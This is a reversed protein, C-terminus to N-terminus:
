KSWAQVVQYFRDPWTLLFSRGVRYLWVLRSNLSRLFNVDFRDLHRCFEIAWASIGRLFGYHKSASVPILLSGLDRFAGGSFDSCHLRGPSLLSCPEPGRAASLSHQPLLFKQICIYGQGFKSAARIGTESM